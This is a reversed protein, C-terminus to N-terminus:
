SKVPKLNDSYSDILEQLHRETRNHYYNFLNDRLDQLSKAGRLANQMQATTYGSVRDRPRDALTGSKSQDNTDVLDFFLSTYKGERGSPFNQNMTTFTLNQSIDNSFNPFWTRGLHHEIYLAWSEKLVLDENNPGSRLFANNWVCCGDLNHHSAHGLEHFATTIAREASVNTNRANQDRIYM